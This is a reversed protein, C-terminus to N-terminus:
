VHFTETRVPAGAWRQHVTLRDPEQVPMLLHAPEVAAVMASAKRHRAGDGTFDSVYVRLGILPRFDIDAVREDPGICVHVIGSASDFCFEEADYAGIFEVLDVFVARPKSGERRLDIITQMGTTM